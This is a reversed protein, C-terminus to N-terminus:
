IEFVWEWHWFGTQEEFQVSNLHYSIEAADLADEVGESWADFETKSFLDITGSMIKEATFDDARFYNGGDEQWVIYREAKTKAFGHRVDPTVTALASMIKEYWKM